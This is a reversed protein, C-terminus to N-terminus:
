ALASSLNSSGVIRSGRDSLARATALGIGSTGALLVAHQRTLDMHGFRGVITTDARDQDLVRGGVTSPFEVAPFYEAARGPHDSEESFEDV